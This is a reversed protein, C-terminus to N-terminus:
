NTPACYKVPGAWRQLPEAYHRFAVKSLSEPLVPRVVGVSSRSTHLDREQRLPDVIQPVMKIRVRLIMVATSPQEHHDSLALAEQTIQSAGVDVSIPADDLFKSEAVLQQTTETRAPACKQSGRTKRKSLRSM